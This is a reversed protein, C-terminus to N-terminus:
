NRKTSTAGEAKLLLPTAHNKVRESLIFIRMSFSHIDKFAFLMQILIRSSRYPWDTSRTRKYEERLYILLVFIVETWIVREDYPVLTNSLRRQFEAKLKVKNTKRFGKEFM